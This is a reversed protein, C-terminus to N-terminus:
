TCPEVRVFEGLGYRPRNRQAHHRSRSTVKDRDRFSLPESKERAPRPRNVPPWSTEVIRCCSRLHHHVRFHFEVRQPRNPATALYVHFGALRYASLGDHGVHFEALGWRHAIRTTALVVGHYVRKFCTESPRDLLKGVPSSALPLRNLIFLNLQFRNNGVTAVTLIAPSLLRPPQHRDSPCRFREMAHRQRNIPPCVGRVKPAAPGVLPSHKGDVDVSVAPEDYGPIIERGATISQSGGLAEYLLEDKVTGQLAAPGRSGRVAAIHHRTTAGPLVSVVAFSAAAKLAPMSPPEHLRQCAASKLDSSQEGQPRRLEYHAQSLARSPRNGKSTFAENRKGNTGQFRVDPVLASSSPLLQASAVPCPTPVICHVNMLIPLECDPAPIHRRPDQYFRRPAPLEDAELNVAARSLYVQVHANFRGLIRLRLDLRDQQVHQPSSPSLVLSQKAM